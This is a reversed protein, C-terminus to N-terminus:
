LISISDGSVSPQFTPKISNISPLQKSSDVIFYKKLICQTYYSDVSKLQNESLPAYKKFLLCNPKKPQMCSTKQRHRM